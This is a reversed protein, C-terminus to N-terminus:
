ADIIMLRRPVKWCWILCPSVRAATGQYEFPKSIKLTFSRSTIISLRRSIADASHFLFAFQLTQLGIGRNSLLYLGLIYTHTYAYLCEFECETWIISLRRWCFISKISCMLFDLISDFAEGLCFCTSRICNHNQVSKCQVTKYQITGIALYIIALNANYPNTNYPKTYYPRWAVNTWHIYMLNILNPAQLLM